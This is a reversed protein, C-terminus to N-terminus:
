GVQILKKRNRQGLIIRVASKPVAFHEALIEIVKRNAKGDRAPDPFSIVYEGPATMKLQQKKSQPRATVWIKQAVPRKM